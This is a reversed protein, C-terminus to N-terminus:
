TPPTPGLDLARLGPSIEPRGFTRGPFTELLIENLIEVRARFLHGGVLRHDPGALGAHLHLSPAEEVRAISGHLAVLEHPERFERRQYTSGDYYGLELDRLMGIGSVVIGAGIREARSIEVLRAFLDDGSDLRVVLTTGQRAVQM